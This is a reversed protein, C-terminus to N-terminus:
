TSVNFMKSLDEVTHVPESAEDLRLNMSDTIDEVFLRLDHVADTGKVLRYGTSDPRVDTVRYFLFDFPYERSPDIESLLKEARDAQEIRKGRPTFKIQQDRLERLLVIRYDNNM